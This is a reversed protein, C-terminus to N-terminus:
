EDGDALAKEGQAYYPELIRQVADKYDGANQFAISAAEYNESNLLEEARKYWCDSYKEWNDQYDGLASYAAAANEWQKQKRFSEAKAYLNPILNEARKSSDLFLPNSNYFQKAQSLYDYNGENVLDEYYRGIYYTIRMACDKYDGLSELGAIGNQYDGSEALALSKCYLTLTAADEYSGLSEFKKAAEEYKGKSLLNQASKYTGEPGGCSCLLFLSILLVVFLVIKKQKM